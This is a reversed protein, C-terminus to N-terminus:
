RGTSLAPMKQMVSSPNSGAVTTTVAVTSQDDDVPQEGAPREGVPVAVLLGSQLWGRSM